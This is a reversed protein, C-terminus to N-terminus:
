ANSVEVDQTLYLRLIEGWDDPTMLAEVVRPGLEIRMAPDRYPNDAM